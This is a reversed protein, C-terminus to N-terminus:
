PPPDLTIVLSEDTEVRSAVIWASNRFEVEQGVKWGLVRSSPTVWLYERGRPHRISVLARGNETPGSEEAAM